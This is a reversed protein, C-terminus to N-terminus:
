TLFAFPYDTFRVEISPSSCSRVMIVFSLVLTYGTLTEDVLVTAGLRIGPLIGWGLVDSRM